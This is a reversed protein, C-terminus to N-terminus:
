VGLGRGLRPAMRSCRSLWPYWRPHSREVVAIMAGLVAEDIEVRQPFSRIPGALTEDVGDGVSRRVTRAHVGSGDMGINRVLSRLPLLTVGDNVLMHLSFWFAWPDLGKKIARRLAFYAPYRGGLDFRLRLETSDRLAAATRRESGTFQSWTKRWTGWGWCPFIPSFVTDPGEHRDVDIAYMFGSIAHVRPEDEYRALADNMYRLFHPNTVVDDEIVIVRDHGTLLLEVGARISVGTGLNTSREVIEVGERRLARLLDRVRRVGEDDKATKPGDSFAYVSTQSFGENKSLAGWVARLHEPRNYAFIAVPANMTRM